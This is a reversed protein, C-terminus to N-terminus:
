KGGLTKLCGYMGGFVVAIVLILWFPIKSNRNEREWEDRILEVFAQRWERLESSLSMETSLYCM